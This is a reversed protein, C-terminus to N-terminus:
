EAPELPLTVTVATGVGYESDIELSGGHLQLIEQALALGLGAGSAGADTQYFKQRIRPLEEPAIGIGTDSIVVQVATPMAAAEVRIRDGSRSYKVANDLLNIFVQKIRDPDGMVLPLNNRRGYPPRYELTIGSRFARDRFLFVAEELLAAIDLPRQRLVMHGSEMRSFDLLEEVIGTLRQAEGGIVTLGQEVLERDDAAMQLTESWGKIATLPTRLEHSISSIFENKMREATAIEGAMFNVTDCLEGIEDDYRKKLRTDYEGMAIRRATRSIDLVPTVISNIFYLGSLAFFFVILLIFVFLLGSLLLIQRNVLALSVVYRLAGVTGGAPTKELMTLAMVMEGAANHGHWIGCGDEATLAQSFDPLSDEEAPVFGTSSLLIQGDASLVQLEMKDKDTFYVILSRSLVDWSLTDSTAAMEMTRNYLQARSELANEVSQYYYFRLMGMFLAQLVLLFLVVILFAHQVWRGILRNKQVLRRLRRRPRGSKKMREM